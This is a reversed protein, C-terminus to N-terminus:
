LDLVYDFDLGRTKQIKRHVPPPPYGTSFLLGQGLAPFGAVRCSYKKRSPEGLRERVRRISLDGAPADLEGPEALESPAPSV